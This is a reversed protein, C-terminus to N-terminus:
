KQIVQCFWNRSAQMDRWKQCHTLGIVWFKKIKKHRTQEKLITLILKFLFFKKKAWAKTAFL